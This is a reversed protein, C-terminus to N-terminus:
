HPQSVWGTRFSTLQGGSIECLLLERRVCRHCGDMPIVKFARDATSVDLRRGTPCPREPEALKPVRLVYGGLDHPSAVNLTAKDASSREMAGAEIQDSPTAAAQNM